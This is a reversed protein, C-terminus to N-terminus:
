VVVIQFSLYFRGREKRGELGELRRGGKRGVVVVVGYRRWEADTDVDVDMDVDVDVDVDV